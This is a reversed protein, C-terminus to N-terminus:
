GINWFLTRGVYGKRHELWWRFAKLDYYSNCPWPPTEGARAKDKYAYKEDILIPSVAVGSMERIYRGVEDLSRSYGLHIIFQPQKTLRRNFFGKIVGAAITASSAPVIVWDFNFNATPVERATESVSEDLKLANPMMYGGRALCDKKAAHYLIASRGAPLAVLEAGLRKAEIQAPHPGPNAKFAPYYDVCKKGLVQCARAVAWGAQSHSTDLAGIIKEPRTKIRAFVGRAKSFPPGPAPCSLDERKVFLGYQKTYDQIPTNHVLMASTPLILKPM